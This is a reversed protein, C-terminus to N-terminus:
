MTLFFFTALKRFAERNFAEGSSPVCIHEKSDAAAHIAGPGGSEQSAAKLTGETARTGEAGHTRAASAM